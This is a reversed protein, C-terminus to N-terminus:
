AAPRTLQRAPAPDFKQSNETKLCRQSYCRLSFLSLPSVSLSLLIFFLARWIHYIHSDHATHAYETLTRSHMEHMHMQLQAHHNLILHMRHLRM